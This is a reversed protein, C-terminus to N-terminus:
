KGGFIRLKESEVKLKGKETINLIDDKIIVYGDYILAKITREFAKEELHFHNNITNINCEEDSEELITHRDIHFLMTTEMFDIKQQKRKVMKGILGVKPSFIFVLFFTVGICTAITGAISLDLLFALWIGVISDLAGVFLSIGIMKKLDDSILYAIAPPGVMFSMVLVSGVAQFAGVTTISVLTMLSYHVLAPTFGLTMALMPDFTTLKLEKFFLKVFVINIILIVGMIWISKAGLNVGNIKFQDFIAFEIKGLLVTSTSLNTNRGYKTLLIIASSFLLPFVLGISADKNVLNTNHLAETLLVTIVGMLAAGLILLPSNLDYTVFYALVIGLLVTHTISDILMSMQRLILFVGLISAASAVFIAILGLQIYDLM